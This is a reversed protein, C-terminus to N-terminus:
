RSQIDALTNSILQEVSGDHVFGAKEANLTTLPPYAGFAAELQPDSDYRINDVSTSTTKSLANILDGMVVHIAPLTVVRDEPMTQNDLGLAHVLNNVTQTRSMLWVQATKSVPMTMTKGALMVHFIDNMFASKFGEAGQPRAVIGPLRVGVGDITGRRTFTGLAVESMMKHMAYHLKPQLPTDDNVGEPPIADGYVAIASAYVFRCKETSAGALQILDVTAEVNIKFSLEPAIEAGGGPITALHVVSEITQNFLTARFSADALDGQKLTLAQHQTLATLERDAAVVSKGAKLLAEVVGSGIFGGAGTVLVTM